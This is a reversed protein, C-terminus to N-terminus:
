RELAALGNQFFVLTGDILGFKEPTALTMCTQPFFVLRIEFSLTRGLCAKFIFHISLQHGWTHRAM